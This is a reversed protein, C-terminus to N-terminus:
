RFTDSRILQELDPLPRGPFYKKVQNRLQEFRQTVYIRVRQHKVEHLTKIESRLRKHESEPDHLCLSSVFPLYEGPRYFGADHLVQGVYQKIENSFEVSLPQDPEDMLHAEVVAWAIEEPTPPRLITFDSTTDNLAHVTEEFAEFYSYFQDTTLLAMGAQLKDMVLQSAVVDFDESIELRITEPEWELAELGNVELFASLLTLAFPDPQQFLRSFNATTSV